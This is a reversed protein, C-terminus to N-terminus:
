RRFKYNQQNKRFIDDIEISTKKETQERQISLETFFKDDLKIKRDIQSLKVDEKTTPNHVKFGQIIGQKNVYPKIYHERFIM